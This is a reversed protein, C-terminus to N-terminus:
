LPCVNLLQEYAAPAEDWTRTRARAGIVYGEALFSLGWPERRHVRSLVEDCRTCVLWPVLVLGDARERTGAAATDEDLVRVRVQAPAGAAPAEAVQALPGALAEREGWSETLVSLEARTTGDLAVGHELLGDVLLRLGAEQEGTLRCDRVAGAAPGPLLGALRDWAVGEPDRDPGRDRDAESM